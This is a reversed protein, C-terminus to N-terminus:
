RPGWVYRLALGAGAALAHLAWQFVLVSWVGAAIAALTYLLYIPSDSSGPNRGIILILLGGMVAVGVLLSYGLWLLIGAVERVTFVDWFKPGAKFGTGGHRPNHPCALMRTAQELYDVAEARAATSRDHLRFVTLWSGAASRTVKDLRDATRLEDDARTRYTTICEDWQERM